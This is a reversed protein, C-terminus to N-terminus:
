PAAVAEANSLGQEIFQEVKAVSQAGVLRQRKWGESTKRYMVLQPISKVGGTLQSALKANHDPNVLAFPIKSFTDNQRVEPLISKKM